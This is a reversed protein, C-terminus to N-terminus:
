RRFRGGIIIGGGYYPGYYYPYPYPGYPGYYPRPGSAYAPRRELTPAPNYDQQRVPQFAMPAATTSITIPESTKFTLTDEPLIVTPRGRTVLVGITSAGLGAAAGLGAGIGGAAAGGIAAGVGTTTGIAAADRGVSTGGSAQVLETKLPLHQGDVLSMDTLEISLQSTGKVRGAKLAESVRGGITEGRRAVVYGNAVLPQTLTATFTDGTHNHDSSLPENVRLTVWTGAPLTLQAPAPAMNVPAPAPGYPGPYPPQQRQYPGPNQYPRPNQYPGPAAQGQNPAQAAQPTTSGPAAVQPSDEFKRWGGQQQAQPDQAFVAASFAILLVTSKM